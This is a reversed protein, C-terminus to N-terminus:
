KQHTGNERNCHHETYGQCVKISSNLTGFANNGKKIAAKHSFGFSKSIMRFPRHEYETDSM